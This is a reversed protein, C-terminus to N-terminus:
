SGTRMPLRSGGSPAGSTGKQGVWAWRGGILEAISPDRICLRAGAGADKGGVWTGRRVCPALDAARIGALLECTREEADADLAVVLESPAAARLLALRAPTLAQGCLAVARREDHDRNYRVADAIGEVLVVREGPRVADIGALVDGIRMGGHRDPSSTRYKARGPAPALFRLQFAVPQGRLRVPMVIAMAPHFVYGWGARAMDERRLGWQRLAFRVFRSAALGGSAFPVFGAPLRCPDPAPAPGPVAVSFASLAAYRDRLVRLAETVSRNWVRAAWEALPRRTEEAWCGANFCGFRAGGPTLVAYGRGRTDGCLPCDFVRIGRDYGRGGDRNLVTVCDALVRDADWRPRM